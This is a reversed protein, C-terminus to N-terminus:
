SKSPHHSVPITIERRGFMRADVSFAGPGLFLIAMALFTLDVVAISDSFLNPPSFPVRSVVIGISGLVVLLAVLPTMLGALLLPAGAFALAALTWTSLSRNPTQLYVVGHVILRVAVLM